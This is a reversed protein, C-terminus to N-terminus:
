PVLLIFCRYTNNEHVLVAWRTVREEESSLFDLGLRSSKKRSSFEPSVVTVSTHSGGREYIGPLFIHDVVGGLEIVLEHVM